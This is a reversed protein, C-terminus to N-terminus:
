LFAPDPDMDLDENFGHPDAVRDMVFCVFFCATICMRFKSAIFYICIGNYSWEFTLVDFYWGFDNCAGGCNRGFVRGVQRHRSAPPSDEHTAGPQGWLCVDKHLRCVQEREAWQRAPEQAEYVTESLRPAFNVASPPSMLATINGGRTDSCHRRPPLCPQVCPVAPQSTCPVSLAQSKRRRINVEPTLFLPEKWRNRRRRKTLPRWTWNLIRLPFSFSNYTTWKQM